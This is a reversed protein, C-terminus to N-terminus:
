TIKKRQPQRPLEFYFTSGLGEESSARMTGGHLEILGHCVSLGLGLGSSARIGVEISGRKFATFLHAMKEKSIGAGQDTVSVGVVNSNAELTIKIPSTEPTYKVANDLLNTLVQNIRVPDLDIEVPKEPPTFVLSRSPAQLQFEELCKSILSAVDTIVHRLVILGREVQSVDLLDTVLHNLRDVPDQLRLLAATNVPQGKELANKMVHLLLSIATIPNRLEHAATDLFRSKSKAIDEAEAKALFLEREQCKRETIDQVTGFLEIISGQIDRKVGGFAKVFRNTGDPRVYELELQYSEGTNLANKVAAQLREWSEPAHMEAMNAYTPPPLKPDLGSIRYLEESWIVNDTAVIWNWIGIKALAYTNRLQQETENLAQVMKTKETIDVVFSCVGMVKGNPTSLPYSNMVQRHRGVVLEIGLVPERTKCVRRIVEELFDAVQPVMERVTKGPYLSPDRGTPVTMAANVKIYRYDPDVLVFGVPAKEIALEILASSQALLEETRKRETIDRGTAYFTSGDPSPSVNGEIWRYEGNKARFRNIVKIVHMGQALGSMEKTVQELDEPHILNTLQTGILETNSYGLISQWARNVRTFTGDISHVAILDAVLNFILEFEDQPQNRQSMCKLIYYTGSIMALLRSPIGTNKRLNAISYEFEM